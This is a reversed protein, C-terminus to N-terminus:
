DSATERAAAAVAEGIAVFTPRFPEFSVKGFDGEAADILAAFDAKALGVSSGDEVSFVFEPVLKKKDPYPTSFLRSHHHGSRRDFESMLFLRRGHEDALQRVDEHYLTEICAREGSPEVLAVAVVGNGRDQWSKSSSGIAKKLVEDKDSDFLCVCPTQQPTMALGECRKLLKDDGNPLYDEDAVLEFDLFEGERHFYRQAALMHVVDTDGETFLRVRRRDAPLPPPAEHRLVFHEDVRELSKALRLYTPNTWGKVSGVHQVRGRVVRAFEPSPKGPPWNRPNGRRGWAQIADATGHREWIYLLNRLDRVYERSVNVKENVVLGTVRQRQTRRMLRTKAPNIQFGNGRVIEVIAEGAVTAGQEVYALQHSTRRTPRSASTM